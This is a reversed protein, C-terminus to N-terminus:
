GGEEEADEEDDDRVQERDVVRVSRLQPDRMGGPRDGAGGGRPAHEQGARVVALSIEAVQVGPGGVRTGDQSLLVAPRFSSM